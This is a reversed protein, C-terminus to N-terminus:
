FKEFFKFFGKITDSKDQNKNTKKEMQNLSKDLDNVLARVDSVNDSAGLLIKIDGNLDFVIDELRNNENSLNENRKTLSEIQEIYQGMLNRQDIRMNMFDQELKHKTVRLDEALKKKLQIEKIQQLEHSSNILSAMIIHSM